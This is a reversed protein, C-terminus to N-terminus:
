LYFLVHLSFRWLNRFFVDYRIKRLLLELVICGYAVNFGKTGTAPDFLHYM